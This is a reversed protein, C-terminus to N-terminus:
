PKEKGVMDAQPMLLLFILALGLLVSYLQVTSVINMVDVSQNEASFDTVSDIVGSDGYQRAPNQRLVQRSGPLFGIM